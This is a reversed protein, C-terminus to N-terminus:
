PSLLLSPYLLPPPIAVAIAFAMSIVVFITGDGNGDVLGDGIVDGDSIGHDDSDIKSMASSIIDIM